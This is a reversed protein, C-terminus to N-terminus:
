IQRGLATQFAQVITYYTSAESDTMGNGISAFSNQRDTIFEPNGPSANNNYALLLINRTSITGSNVNDTNLVSGNRYQKSQTSSIRNVQYFAPITTGLATPGVQTANVARFNEQAAAYYPAIYLGFNGGQIGMEVNQSKVGATRVYASLHIDNLTLHSNPVFNTNAYGNTGNSTIGTSAFTITGSFSLRFAANTDAPNILNFKCTTATGGVMPYIAKMKTWLGANKLGIVLNNIAFVTTGDTINAAQLFALADNDFYIPNPVVLTNGLAFYKIKSDGLYMINYLEAM